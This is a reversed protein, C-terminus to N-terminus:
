SYFIIDYETERFADLKDFANNIYYDDCDAFVLWIGAAAEIGVNRAHGAGKSEEKTIYIVDVDERNIQPRRNEDSYDDVVIIEIDNRKPISALCRDLLEPSNKHPIIISYNIM